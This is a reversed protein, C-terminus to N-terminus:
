VRRAGQASQTDQAAAPACHRVNASPATRSERARALAAACTHDVMEWGDGAKRKSMRELARAGGPSTRAGPGQLQLDRVLWHEDAHAIVVCRSDLRVQYPAVGGTAGESGEVRHDVAVVTGAAWATYGDAGEEVACAVRDDLAFRRARHSGKRVAKPLCARTFGAAGARQGFCVEARVVDDEDRPVSVLRSDPPDIKVVYPLVTQGTPDSADDENLAQVAGAAWGREGGVMCVVRDRRAFRLTSPLALAERVLRRVTRRIHALDGGDLETRGEDKMVSFVQDIVDCSIESIDGPDLRFDTDCACVEADIAAHISELTAIEDTTLDGELEGRDDEGFSAAQM